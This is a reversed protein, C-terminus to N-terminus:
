TLTLIGTGAWAFTLDGSVNTQNSGLDGILILPSTGPTGTDKYIAFYRADTFGGGADTLITIDAADFTAVGSSLTVTVTSLTVPGTYATGTAVEKASVDDFHEQVTADGTDPTFTDDLVVCKITDTDFDVPAGGLTSGDLTAQKFKNYVTIDGVAM